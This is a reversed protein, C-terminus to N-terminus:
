DRLAGSYAHPIPSLTTPRRAESLIPGNDGEDGLFLVPLTIDGSSIEQVQFIQFVVSDQEIPSGTGFVDVGLVDRPEDADWNDFGLFNEANALDEFDADLLQATLGQITVDLEFADSLNAVADGVAFTGSIELRVIPTQCSPDFSREIRSVVAQDHFAFGQRTSEAVGGDADLGEACTGEWLGQLRAAPSVSSDMGSDASADTDSADHLGADLPVLRRDDDCGLAGTVGLLTPLWFLTGMTWERRGLRQKM